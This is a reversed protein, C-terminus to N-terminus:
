EAVTQYMAVINEAPVNPMINHITNFVFGGGPALIDIRRRVHDIVEAPNGRNLVTKTDAGAGWFTIDGGFEKKLREPEMDICSTQIPNLIDYGVEILDPLLKYLSGCSHLFTHMSSHKKVYDCLAKHRPKFLRRYVEPSMFPGNSTGLDDGFRIIDVVDGLAECAKVLTAMHLEMIADLFREVQEPESYMDMLFNDMRRLFTGWEFLNCGCVFMLAKDTTRRLELAKGRLNSWFDKETAHDWPSHAFASWHVRSMDTGLSSFDAPYGDLYPFTVQDFFTAGQPMRGAPTGDKLHAIFSGDKQEVPKFWIPYEARSGDSLRVEHWSDDSVNFARGIDIVDVGFREIIGDEPQAVQQCVDYVRTHGDQINLHKKLNNYAIASIGSSPTSGLDLPVRDPEKHNISALIRERSTM